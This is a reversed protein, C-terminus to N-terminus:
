LLHQMSRRAYISYVIQKKKSYLSYNGPAFSDASGQICEEALQRSLVTHNSITRPLSLRLPTCSLASIKLCDIRGAVCGPPIPEKSDIRPSTLFKFIQARTGKTSGTKHPIAQKHFCKKCNREWGWCGEGAGVKM